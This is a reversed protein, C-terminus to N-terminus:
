KSHFGTMFKRDSMQDVYDFTITGFGKRGWKEGWSNKIFFIRKNLDYGVVLIAHGGCRKRDNQCETKWKKTLYFDGSNYTQDWMEKHGLMSLSVPTRSGALSRVVDISSSDVAKFIFDKGDIIRGLADSDPGSHSYCLPNVDPKGKQGQCPLGEDFWSQQYPHDDEFMFGFSQLALANVAVSSDEELSRMKLKAKSAWALYEESMDIEKGTKQKILYETLSTVVFYTCAGRPGQSKVKSQDNRLDVIRPLSSDEFLEPDIQKQPIFHIQQTAPIRFNNGVVMLDPKETGLVSLSFFILSVLM